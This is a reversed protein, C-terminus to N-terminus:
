KSRTAEITLIFKQDGFEITISGSLSDGDITMEVPFSMGSDPDSMAGSITNKDADFTGEFPATQDQVTFGGTVSGEEDLKLSITVSQAEPVQESSITGEWDGTVPDDALAHITAAPVLGPPLMSPRSAGALVGNTLSAGLALVGAVGIMKFDM